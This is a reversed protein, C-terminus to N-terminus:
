PAFKGSRITEALREVAQAAAEQGHTRVLSAVAASLATGAILENEIGEAAASRWADSFISAALKKHAELPGPM